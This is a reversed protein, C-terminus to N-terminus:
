NVNTAEAARRTYFWRMLMIRIYEILAMIPYERARSRASDLFEALNRTM